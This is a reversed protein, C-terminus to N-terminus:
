NGGEKKESLQKLISLLDRSKANLAGALRTMPALITALLQSRLTDKSPLDSLRKVQSGDLLTGDLVGGKVSFGDYAKAFKVFLKSIEVSDENSFAFATQGEMSESLKEFDLDKLAIKAIRNKSVYFQAGARKLDKRLSDMQSSSISSYSLLFVSKNNEVGRKVNDVLVERYLRGVKEVKEM